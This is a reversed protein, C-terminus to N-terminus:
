VRRQQDALVEPANERHPTGSAPGLVARDQAHNLLCHRGWLPTRQAPQGWTGAGRGQTKPFQPDPCLRPVTLTPAPPPPSPLPASASGVAHPHAGRTACPDRVREGPGPATRPPRSRCRRPIPALNLSGAPTPSGRHGGDPVGSRLPKPLHPDPPGRSGRPGGGARLGRTQACCVRVVGRLRPWPWTTM